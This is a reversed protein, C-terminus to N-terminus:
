PQQPAPRDPEAGAEGLRLRAIGARTFPQLPIPRGAWSLRVARANGLRLRLPPTGDLEVTRGARALDYYLRRGGADYVEVWADESAVIRLRGAAAPPEPRPRETVPPPLPGAAPLPPAPAPAETPADPPPQPTAEPAAPAAPAPSATDAPVEALPPASAAAEPAAPGAPPAGGGAVAPEEVVPATTAPEALAPETMAPEGAAPAPPPPAPLPQGAPGTAPPAVVAPGRGDLWWAVLLAALTAAVVYSAARVPLDTSRRQRRQGREPPTLPADDAALEALEGQLAENDLGLRLALARVYGRVYVAAPLAARDAEELARLMEPALNLQKALAELQMGRAERANRLTRAVAVLGGDAPRGDDHEPPATTM